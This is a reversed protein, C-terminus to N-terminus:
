EFNLHLPPKPPVTSTKTPQNNHNQKTKGVEAEVTDTIKIFM